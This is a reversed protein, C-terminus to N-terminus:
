GKVLSLTQSNALYKVNPHHSVYDLMEELDDWIGLENIEWSHGYLHWIGGDRLVQDFLQKGLEVWSRPKRLKIIGKVFGPVSKARGLNRFYARRLHPFAQVTTPMQFSRFNLQSALMRTTRAGRYGARKVERIVASNYRGNPYCFMVVSEGLVQELASKCDRVEHSLETRNLKSLSAHSVSHAGIEFKESYLERLAGKEM